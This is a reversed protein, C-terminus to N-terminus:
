DKINRAISLMVANAASIIRSAPGGPQSYQEWLTEFEIVPNSSEYAAFRRLADAIRESEGQVLQALAEIDGAKPTVGDDVDRVISESLAM